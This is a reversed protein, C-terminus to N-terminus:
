NRKSFVVSDKPGVKSGEFPSVGIDYSISANYSYEVAPLMEDLDDQHYSCYCIIYNEFMMKMIESAVDARLNRSSSM